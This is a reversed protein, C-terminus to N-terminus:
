FNQMVKKGYLIKTLKGLIHENKNWSCIISIKNVKKCNAKFCSISCNITILAERIFMKKFNQRVEEVHILYQRQFCAPCSVYLMIKAQLVSGETCKEAFTKAGNIAIYKVSNFM